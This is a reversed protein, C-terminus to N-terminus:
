FIFCFFKKKGNELFKSIKKSLKAKDDQIKDILDYLGAIESRRHELEGRLALMENALNHKEVELQHVVGDMSNIEDRSRAIEYKAQELERDAQTVVMQKEIEAKRAIRNMEKIDRV